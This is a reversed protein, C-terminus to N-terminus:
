SHRRFTNRTRTSSAAARRLPSAAPSTSLRRRRWWLLVALFAPVLPLLRLTLAAPSLPEEPPGLGAAQRPTPAGLWLTDGGAAPHPANLSQDVDKTLDAHQAAFREDSVERLPIRTLDVGGYSYTRVYIRDGSTTRKDVKFEGKTYSRVYQDFTDTPKWESETQWPTIDGKDVLDRYTTTRTRSLERYWEAAVRALYVRRLEAYEPATNIAHKLGPLILDRFLQENRDEAAKDQQPCATAKPGGRRRVYQTEMQVDLPADLIYLKDGDQRVSAPASLIWTRFSLCDGSVSNWFRRGTAADPHILQAVTKKMRLDAQLMIRGADTRGLRSDVIRDPENPNLNVWFASPNLSLWVFFADSTQDAATLGTSTRADGKLPDRGASFSYQLGSGDGPDSLYRLEMSSFDIGGPDMGPDALAQSLGTVRTRGGPPQEEDCPRARRAAAPVITQSKASGLRHPAAGQAGDVPCPTQPDAFTSALSGGVLNQQKAARGKVGELDLGLQELAKANRALRAAEFEELVKDAARSQRSPSKGANRKAREVAAPYAAVDAVSLDYSRAYVTPMRRPYFHACRQCQQRESGGLLIADRGIGHKELLQGIVEESHPGRPANLASMAVLVGVDNKSLERRDRATLFKEVSKVTVLSGRWVESRSLTVPPNERLIPAKEDLLEMIKDDTLKLPNILEVAGNRHADFADDKESSLLARHFAARLDAIPLLPPSLLPNKWRQSLDIGEAAGLPRGEDASSPPPPGLLVALVVALVALGRSWLRGTRVVM